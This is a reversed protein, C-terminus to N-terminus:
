DKAATLNKRKPQVACRTSTAKKPKKPVVELGPQQGTILLFLEWAPLPIARRSDPNDARTGGQMAAKLAAPSQIAGHKSAIWGFWTVRM